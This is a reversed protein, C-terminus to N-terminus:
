TDGELKVDCVWSARIMAGFGNEADVEGTITWPNSGTVETNCFDATSPSKLKDRVWDECAAEAGYADSSDPGSGGDCMSSVAGVLVLVLLALCGRPQSQASSKATTGAPAGVSGGLGEGRPPQGQTAARQPPAPAATLEHTCVGCTGSANDPRHRRCEVCWKLTSGMVEGHGTM